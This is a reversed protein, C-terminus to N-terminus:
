PNSAKEDRASFTTGAWGEVVISPGRWFSEPVIRLKVHWCKTRLADALADRVYLLMDPPCHVDPGILKYTMRLTVPVRRAYNFQEVAFKLWYERRKQLAVERERRTEDIMEAISMPDSPNSPRTM